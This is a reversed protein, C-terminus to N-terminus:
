YPVKIHNQKGTVIAIGNTGGNIGRTIKEFDERDALKNLDGRASGFRWFWGASLMAWPLEALKKPDSVFDYGLAKSVKSYNNRGTIQIAGRGKYRVGDGPQTNGLDKRGEYAKGSALETFFQFSGSEHLVQSLFNTIRSKTNIQFKKMTDNLPEVFREVRSKSLGSIEMLQELTILDGGSIVQDDGDPLNNVSDFSSDTNSDSPNDNYENNSSNSSSNNIVSIEGDTLNLDRKVLRVKQYFVGKEM